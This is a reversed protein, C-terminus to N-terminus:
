SPCISLFARASFARKRSWHIAGIVAAAVVTAVILITCVIALIAPLNRRARENRSWDEPVYVYRAADM